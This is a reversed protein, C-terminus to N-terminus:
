QRPGDSFLSEYEYQLQALPLALLLALLLPLLLLELRLECLEARDLRDLLCALVECYARKLM